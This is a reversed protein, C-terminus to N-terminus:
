INQQINKSFDKSTEIYKRSFNPLPCLRNKEGFKKKIKFTQIIILKVELYLFINKLSIYKCFVEWIKIETYIGGMGQHVPLRIRRILGMERGRMGTLRWNIMGTRANIHRSAAKLSIITTGRTGFCIWNAFCVRLSWAGNKHADLPGSFREGGGTVTAVRRATVKLPTESNPVPVWPSRRGQGFALALICDSRFRSSQGAAM